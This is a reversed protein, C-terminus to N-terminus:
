EEILEWDNEPKNRDPFIESLTNWEGIDGSMGGPFYPFDGGAIATDVAEDGDEAEVEIVTEAVAVLYVRYRSM